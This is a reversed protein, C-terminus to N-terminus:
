IEACVFSQLSVAAVLTVTNIESLSGGSLNSVFAEKQAKYEQEMVLHQRPLESSWRSLQRVHSGTEFPCTHQSKEM